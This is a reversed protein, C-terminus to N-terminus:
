YLRRNLSERVVIKISETVSKYHTNEFTKSLRMLELIPLDVKLVTLKMNKNYAVIWRHHGDLIYNDNSVIVGSQAKIPEDMMLAVKNMDFESQSAKLDNPDVREESYAVGSEDLKKKYEGLPGLQPMLIRSFTLGIKPIKIESMDSPGHRQPM